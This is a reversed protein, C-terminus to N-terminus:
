KVFYQLYPVFNLCCPGFLPSLMYFTITVLSMIKAIKKKDTESLQCLTKVFCYYYYCPVNQYESVGGWGGSPAENLVEMCTTIPCRKRKNMAEKFNKKRNDQLAEVNHLIEYHSHAPSVSFCLLIVRLCLAKTSLSQKDAM